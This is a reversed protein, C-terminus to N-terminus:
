RTFEKVVAAEAENKDHRHFARDLVRKRLKWKMGLRTETIFILVKGDVVRTVKAHYDIVIDSRKRLEIKYRM